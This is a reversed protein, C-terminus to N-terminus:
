LSTKAGTDTGITRRCLKALAYSSRDPLSVHRGTGISRRIRCISNLSSTALVSQSSLPLTEFRTSYNRRYATSSGFSSITNHHSRIYPIPARRLSIQPTGTAQHGMSHPLLEMQLFQAQWRLNKVSKFRTCQLFSEVIPLFDISNLSAHDSPHIFFGDVPISKVPTFATRQFLTQRHPPPRHQEECYTSRPSPSVILRPVNGNNLLWAHLLETIYSTETSPVDGSRGVRINIMHCSKGHHMPNM